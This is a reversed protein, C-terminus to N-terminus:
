HPHTDSKAPLLIEIEVPNSVARVPQEATNTSVFGLATVRFTHKGPTIILPENNTLSRWSGPLTFEVGNHRQGSSLVISWNKSKFLDNRKGIFGPVHYWRDDCQLEWFLQDKAIRFETEGANWVDASFHIVEEVQWVTKGSWLRCQLGCNAKGWPPSLSLALEEAIRAPPMETLWWVSLPTISSRTLLHIIALRGENTLVAAYAGRRLMVTLAKNSQLQKISRLTIGVAEERRMPDQGSIVLLRVPSAERRKLVVGDDKLDWSVDFEEDWTDGARFGTGTDLDVVFGSNMYMRFGPSALLNERLDTETPPMRKGESCSATSRRPLLVKYRIKLNQYHRPADYELFQLIGMTGDATKVMYTPKESDNGRRMTVKTCLERSIMTNILEQPSIDWLEADVTVIAMNRGDLGLIGLSTTYSYIDVNYTLKQVGPAVQHAYTKGSDLDLMYCKGWFTVTTEPGFSTKEVQKALQASCTRSIPIVSFLIILSISRSVRM